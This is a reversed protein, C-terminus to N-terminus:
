RVFEVLSRDNGQQLLEFLGNQGDVCGNQHAPHTSRSPTFQRNVYELGQQLPDQKHTM